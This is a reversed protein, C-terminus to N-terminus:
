IFIQHKERDSGSGPYIYRFGGEAGNAYHEMSFKAEAERMAMPDAGETYNCPWYEVIGESYEEGDSSPGVRQFTENSECEMPEPFNEDDGTILEFMKQNFAGKAKRSPAHKVFFFMMDHGGTMEADTYIPTVVSLAVNNEFSNAHKNWAMIFKQFAFDKIMLCIKMMRKCFVYDAAIVNTYM